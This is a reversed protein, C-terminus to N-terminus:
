SKLQRLRNNRFHDREQSGLLRRNRIFIRDFDQARAWSVLNEGREGCAIPKRKNRANGCANLAIQEGV